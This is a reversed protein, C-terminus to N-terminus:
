NYFHWDDAYNVCFKNNHWLYLLNTDIAALRDQCAKSCKTRLENCDCGDKTGPWDGISFLSYDSPCNTAPNTVRLDMIPPARLNKDLYNVIPSIEKFFYDEDYLPLWYLYVLFILTLYIVTLVIFCIELQLYIPYVRKRQLTPKRLNPNGKDDAM